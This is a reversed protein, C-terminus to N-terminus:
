RDQHRPIKRVPKDVERNKERRIKGEVETDNDPHHTAVPACNGGTSRRPALALAPAHIRSSGTPSQSRAHSRKASVCRVM